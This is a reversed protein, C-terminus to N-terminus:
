RDGHERELLRALERVSSCAVLEVPVRYAHLAHAVRASDAARRSLFATGRRGLPAFLRGPYAHSARWGHECEVVCGWLHVQGIVAGVANRQLGRGRVFDAAAGASTV